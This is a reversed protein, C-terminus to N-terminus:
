KDWYNIILKLTIDEKKIKLNCPLILSPDQKHQMYDVYQIEWSNQKIRTVLGTKNHVSYNLPYTPDPLGKIWYQLSSVPFHLGTQDYILKEPSFAEMREGNSTIFIAKKNKTNGKLYGGGIGFPGFFQIKYAPGQQKWIFSASQAQRANSAAVKGEATWNKLESLKKKHNEITVQNRSPLDIKQPTSSCGPLLLAACCLISTGYRSFLSM